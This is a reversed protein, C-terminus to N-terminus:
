GEATFTCRPRKIAGSLRRRGEHFGTELEDVIAAATAVGRVGAVSQGASWIDRWAKGAGGAGFDMNGDAGPLRDADLGAAALSAKLFSAPVGTVARTCVVDDIGAAVVADKYAKPADAESSAIFRTGMYAFDAGLACAAAIGQGTSIGGALGLLGSHFERIGAVLAFPNHRGTNGGAGACLAVLGDVGDDLAKRAHRTDIVDHLVTGGYRHVAEVVPAPNSLSTIVVPVEHRVIVELDAAARDNSRHLIQNVAFPADGQGLAARIEHLWGDLQGTSRANLAPFAGIIGARCQAIVLAPRSVMFMPAGIVPLRCRDFLGGSM